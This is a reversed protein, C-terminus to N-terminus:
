ELVYPNGEEGTGSKIKISSKLYIVPRVGYNFNSYSFCIYLNSNYIILYLVHLM